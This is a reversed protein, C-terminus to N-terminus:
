LSRVKIPVPRFSVMGFYVISHMYKVSRWVGDHNYDCQRWKYDSKIGHGIIKFDQM